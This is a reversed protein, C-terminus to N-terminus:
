RLICNQTSYSALFLPRSTTLTLGLPVDEFHGLHPPFSTSSSCLTSLHPFHPKTPSLSTVAVSFRYLLYTDLYELHPTEPTAGFTGM